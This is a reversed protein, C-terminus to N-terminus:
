SWVGYANLWVWDRIEGFGDMARLPALLPCRDIWLIDILGGRACDSLVEFAKTELGLLMFIEVCSQRMAMRVRPNSFNPITKEYWASFQQPDLTGALANSYNMIGQWNNDRIARRQPMNLNKPQRGYRYAHLRLMYLTGGMTPISARRSAEAMLEESEDFKGLLAHCRAQFMCPMPRHPVASAAYVLRPMGRNILGTEIEIGGLYEQAEHSTPDIEVARILYRVARKLEFRQTALMGMALHTDSLEPALRIAVDVVEAAIHEWNFEAIPARDFFWCRVAVVARTAIAPLFTPARQVCSELLEYANVLHTSDPMRKLHRASVYDQAVADPVGQAIIEAVEITTRDASSDVHQALPLRPGHPAGTQAREVSHMGIDVRSHEHTRLLNLVRGVEEVSDPRAAPDNDLCRQVLNEIAILEEESGRVGAARLDVRVPKRRSSLWEDCRPPLSGTLCEFLVLGFSYLDTRPSPAQKAFQEPAMYSVTGIIRGRLAPDDTEAHSAIGFDALVVRGLKGLIVNGPKLDRHVIGQAHVAALGNALAHAIRIVEVIPLKGSPAHQITQRLTIGDILEMTMYLLSDVEGIDYVHVVNAHTIRRSLKVEQRFMDAHDQTGRTPLTLVKLAVIEALALDRVRYVAGMGGEGLLAEVDYRNAFRAGIALKRPVAAMQRLELESMTADDAIM